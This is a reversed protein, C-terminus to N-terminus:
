VSEIIQTKAVVTVNDKNEEIWNNMDGLSNFPKTIRRSSIFKPEYIVWYKANMDNVGKSVKFNTFRACKHKKYLSKVPKYKLNHL